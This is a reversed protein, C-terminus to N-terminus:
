IHVPKSNELFKSGVGLREAGQFARRYSRPNTNLVKRFHHRMTPLTGFGSLVAIEELRYEKNNELLECAFGLRERILWTSPPLGTLSEFRRQFTRLSMGALQALEEVPHCEDLSQRMRKIVAGMRTAEYDKPVPKPIFQSQGGERHPPMILGRAIINAREVGFDQRVIHICLDMGAASGAATFVTGRDVYLVDPDFEILPFRRAIISIFRWHTTAKGNDLLGAEALVVAGSCLSAIRAGRLHAQQLADIISRDVPSEVDPWGPIIILDATELAKLDQKIFVPLGGSSSITGAHSTACGFTYWNDGFEPRPLGFVEYAIGFEFALLEDSILCVVSHPM